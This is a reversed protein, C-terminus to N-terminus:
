TKLKGLSPLLRIWPNLGSSRITPQVSMDMSLTASHLPWCCTKQARISTSNTRWLHRKNRHHYTKNEASKACFTCKPFSSESRYARSREADTSLPAIATPLLVIRKPQSRVTPRYIRPRQAREKFLPGRTHSRHRPNCSSRMARRRRPAVSGFSQVGGGEPARQSDEEGEM